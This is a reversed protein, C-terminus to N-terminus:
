DHPEADGILNCWSSQSVTPSAGVASKSLDAPSPQAEGAKQARIATAVSSVSQQTSLLCRRPYIEMQHRVLRNEMDLAWLRNEYADVSIARFLEPFPKWYLGAPNALSLGRLRHLKHSSDLCWVANDAVTLETVKVDSAAESWTKGKRDSETIETRAWSRGSFPASIWVYKGSPSTRVQAVKENSANKPRDVKTWAVKAMETFWIEGESTIVWLVHSSAAISIIAGALGDTPLEHWEHGTRSHEANLGDRIHVAGCSDLIYLKDRTASMAIITMPEDSFQPLSMFMRKTTSYAFVETNPQCLFICNATIIGFNDYVSKRQPVARCFVHGTLPQRAVLLWKGVNIFVGETCVRLRWKSVPLFKKSDPTGSLFPSCVRSWSGVGFPNNEDVGNNFWVNGQNDLGFGTTDLLAISVFARPGNLSDEVWDVGMPCHKLGTRVVLTGTGARLAWVAHESATIESLEFPCEAYFLIGMEPLHLQAFVGKTTVYWAHRASLAVSILTGENAQETWTSAYPTGPDVELPAYAVGGDVRWLLNGADNVHVSTANLKLQTWAANAKCDFQPDIPRYHPKNSKKQPCIVIYSSSVDFSSAVFPLSVQNWVDTRH